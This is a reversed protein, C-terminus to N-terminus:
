KITGNVRLTKYIDHYQTPTIQEPRSMPSIGLESCVEAAMTKDKIFASLNNLITKRRNLFLQKALLYTELCEQRDFSERLNIEFVISDCKPSPYFSGPKVVFLKKSSGLLHVLVSVAGYDGGSVSIFRSFAEAQCMLVMKKCSTGNLLLLTVLDTTINYPLNGIIKTYSFIDVKRIDSNIFLLNKSDKYINSLFNIMRPDIDVADCFSLKQSLFHTLSGLGPGIELIKDNEEINLAEVIRSSINFDILFNQGFDKDPKLNLKSIIEGINSRNIIV